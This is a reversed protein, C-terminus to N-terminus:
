NKKEHNVFANKKHELAKVELTIHRSVKESSLKYFDFIYRHVYM